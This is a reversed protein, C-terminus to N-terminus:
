GSFLTRIEPKADALLDHVFGDLAADDGPAIRTERYISHAGNESLLQVRLRYQEGTPEALAAVPSRCDAGLRALVGREIGVACRTPMDSIAALTDLMM